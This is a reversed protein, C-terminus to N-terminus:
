AFWERYQDRLGLVRPIYAQTEKYPPVGNWRDVAGPGANYAALATVVDGGYRDLMQRLFRAGGEINQVPDFSDTVGLGRATADMLQMLGKAGSRSVASASFGSEAHVVAKLLASDLGNREAAEQILGDFASPQAQLGAGRGYGTSGSGLYGQLNELLSRVMDQQLRAWISELM